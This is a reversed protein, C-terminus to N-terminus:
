KLSIMKGTRFESGARLRYYYVGSAYNDLNVTIAHDGPLYVQEIDQYIQRGAADFISLQVSSRGSLKFPIRSTGNFPNPYNPELRFGTPLGGPTSGSGGTAPGGKIRNTNLIMVADAFVPYTGTDHNSLQVVTKGSGAELYYDGLKYWGSYGPVRYNVRVTDSGNFHSVVYPANTAGNWYNVVWTYVEYWGSEPIDTKWSIEAPGDGTAYLCGGEFGPIATYTQWSGSLTVSTDTENTILAPKRWSSDRGPPEVKEQYVSAKLGPLDDALTNYYWIVHGPLNRARTAEIKDILVDTPVMYTDIVSSIGPYVKEPVTVQSLQYDLDSVYQALTARYVQPSVFDLHGENIWPRWDQCFNAYGYNYVIPANSVFLDPRLAKVTDYVDAVYQTLKAARWQMWETNNIVSPPMAGGHEAAYVAKTVDDYGCDLEPYRIRDLEVGDVDYNAIVELVLDTLFQQAEPNVHALWKYNYTGNFLYSGDRKRALWEPRQSLIYDNVGTAAVFGYEFWAEVHLGVRHAEAIMEQLIDRGEEVAPDTWLGSFSHFIESRWYPYGFRWVDVYVTNMNHAALDDMTAAIEARSPFSDGAWAVWVGRLENQQATVSSILILLFILRKIMFFCGPEVGPM